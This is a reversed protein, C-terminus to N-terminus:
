QDLKEKIKQIKAGLKKKLKERDEKSLKRIKDDMSAAPKEEPGKEEAKKEPKEEGEKKIEPEEKAKVEPKKKRRKKKKPKKKAEETVKEEAEKEAKEEAAKEKAEKKAKEEAAKKLREEREQIEREEAEQKAVEEQRLEELEKLTPGESVVFEKKHVVFTSRNANWWEGWEGVIKKREETESKPNYAFDQGTLMRLTYIATARVDSNKDNLLNILHLIAKADRLEGLGLAATKRVVAERDGLLGILAYVADESEVWGLYMAARKRVETHCDKAAEVLHRIISSTDPALKYVGRLGELRARPNNDKLLHTIAGVAGSAKLKVLTKCAQSRINGNPDKLAAVLPKIVAEPGAKAGINELTIVAKYRKSAQEELIDRVAQKLVASEYFGTDSKAQLAEKGSEPHERKRRVAGTSQAFLDAVTRVGRMTVGATWGSIACVAKVGNSIISKWVSYKTDRVPNVCKITANKTTERIRRM